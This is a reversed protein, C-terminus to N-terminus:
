APRAAERFAHVWREITHEPVGLEQAIRATDFGSCWMAIVDAYARLQKKEQRM